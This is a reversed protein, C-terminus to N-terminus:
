LPSAITGRRKKTDPYLSAHQKFQLRPGRDGHQNIPMVRSQRSRAYIWDSRNQLSRTSGAIAVTIQRDM